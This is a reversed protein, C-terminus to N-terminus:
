RKKRKYHLKFVRQVTIPTEGGDAIVVQLTIKLSGTRKLQKLAKQGLTFKIKRDGAASLRITGTALRTKHHKVYATAKFNGTCSLGGFPCIVIVGTNVKAGARKAHARGVTPRLTPFAFRDAFSMPSEGLPTIVRIDEAGAGSPAVATLAGDNSVKFSSAPASGFLVQTAGTFGVGSITVSTGATGSSPSIAGVSPTEMEVAGMDSRDGGAPVTTITPLMFPRKFGRQDTTAGFAKGQDLVPSTPSPVMTETQGGNFQLPGLQPDKGSIDSSNTTIATDGSPASPDHILSYSATGTSNDALVVDPSTGSGSVISNDITVTGGDSLIQGGPSASTTNGAVTSDVIKATSDFEEIGGVEGGSNGTITSNTITGYKMYVGGAGDSTSASNGSVTSDNLTLSSSEGYVRVGADATATNGSVTVGYLGLDAYDAVIGGGSADPSGGTITLGSMKVGMSTVGSAGHAGIVRHGAYGKITLESAGPGTIQVPRDIYLSDETTTPDATSLAITGTLGNAFVISDGPAATDTTDANVDLIAQRLSGTGSDNLNTVTYTTAAHAVGGGALSAVAAVGGSAVAM